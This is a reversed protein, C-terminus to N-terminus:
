MIINSAYVLNACKQLAFKMIDVERLVRLARLTIDEYNGIPVGLMYVTGRNLKGQKMVPLVHAQRLLAPALFSKGSIRTPLLSEM